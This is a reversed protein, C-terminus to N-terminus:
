AGDDNAEEIQRLLDAIAEEKTPGYGVPTAPNEEDFTDNDVACWDYSRVPIPPCIHITRINM